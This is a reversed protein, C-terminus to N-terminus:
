LKQVAQQIESQHEALAGLVGNVFRPASDSGFLKALEVAENIAVKLPTQGYVAFEWLAIRLINRDIAAIQDLPWEPAYRAILHDLTETIPLVGFVIQRAFEALDDPLPSEELRLKFIEGPLHNAIDVEYLVQLALSRARTRPKM